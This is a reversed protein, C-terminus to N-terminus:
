AAIRKVIRANKYERLHTVEAGAWKPISVAADETPLEVEILQLDELEPNLFSDIEWTRGAHRVCIRRKNLSPGCHAALATHVETGIQTEIEICSMGSVKRKLTLLHRADAGQVNTSRRIRMTWESPDSLEHRVTGQVDDSKSPCVTANRIFRSYAEDSMPTKIRITEGRRKTRLTLIHERGGDTGPASRVRLTWSGSRNLYRQQILRRSALTGARAAMREITSAAMLPLFKREIEHM